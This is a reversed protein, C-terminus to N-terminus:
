YNKGSNDQIKEIMILALKILGEINYVEKRSYLSKIGEYHLIGNEFKFEGNNLLPREEILKNKLIMDSLITKAFHENDSRIIFLGDFEPDNIDIDKQIGLLKGFKRFFGEHFIRLYYSSKHNVHIDFATYLTKSKGTGRMFSYLQFDFGNIKGYLKPYLSLTVVKWMKTSPIDLNLGLRRALEKYNNDMKKRYHISLYFIGIMVLFIFSLVSTLIIADTM